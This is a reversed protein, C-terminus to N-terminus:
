GRVRMAALITRFSPRQGYLLVGASYVRSALILMAGITPILIAIALLPEWPQVTGDVLRVLMVYPSTFPFLSLFVVWPSASGASGAFIAAFYGGMTVFTLPTIVQQVEEQRSVVSGAAAYILAYLTFGLAFFVVFMVLVAPTLGALPLGGSSAGPLILATIPGQLIIGVLAAALIGVYQTMGAAGTGAVKGALMQRPSAASLMLEMVRSGKEEAVSMAVWTGYTIVTVFILIVLINSTFTRSVLDSTSRTPKSADRPTVAFDAPELLSVVSGIPISLREARDRIAISTAGQLVSYAMRGDPATDAVLEFRVGGDPARTITLIGDYRGQQLDARAAALDPVPTMVFAPGSGAGPSGPVGSASPAPSASAGADGSAGPSASPEASGGAVANTIGDLIPVPDFSLGADSYVAIKTTLQGELVTVLTPVLAAAFAILMLFATGLVFSRTRVRQAYERRAVIGANPLLHDGERRPVSDRVAPAAAERGDRPRLLRMM